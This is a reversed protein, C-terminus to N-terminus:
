PKPKGRDRHLAEIEEWTMQTTEDDAKRKKHRKREPQDDRPAPQSQHPPDSRTSASDQPPVGAKLRELDERSMLQTGATRVPTRPTFSRQDAAASARTREDDGRDSGLTAHLEAYTVLRTGHM